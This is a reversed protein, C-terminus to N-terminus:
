ARPVPRLRALGLMGLALMLLSAPSLSPVAQAAQLLVLGALLVLALRVALSDTLRM